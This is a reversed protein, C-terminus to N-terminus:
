LVLWFYDALLFLVWALLLLDSLLHRITYQHSKERQAVLRADSQTGGVSAQQEERTQLIPQLEKGPTSHIETAMRHAVHTAKLSSKTAHMPSDRPEEPM